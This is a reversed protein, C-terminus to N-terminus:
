PKGVTFQPAPPGRREFEATGVVTPQNRADDDNARQALGIPLGAVDIEPAEMIAPPPGLFFVSEPLLCLLSWM